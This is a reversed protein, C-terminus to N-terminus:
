EESSKIIDHEKIDTIYVNAKPERKHMKKEWNTIAQTPTKGTVLECRATFSKSVRIGLDPMARDVYEQNELEYMYTIEYVKNEM